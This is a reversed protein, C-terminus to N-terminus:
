ARHVSAVIQCASTFQCQDKSARMDSCSALFKQSIYFQKFNHLKKKSRRMVYFSIGVFRENQYQTVQSNYIQVYYTM